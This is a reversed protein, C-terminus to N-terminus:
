SRPQRAELEEWRALCQMLEDEIASYRNQLAQVGSPQDRYVSADALQRTIEAQESELAAIREPLVELERTEKYSLKASTKERRPQPPSHRV